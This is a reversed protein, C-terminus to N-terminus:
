LSNQVYKEKKQKCNYFCVTENLGTIVNKVLPMKELLCCLWSFYAEELKVVICILSLM